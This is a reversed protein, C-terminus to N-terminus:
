LLIEDGYSPLVIRGAKDSVVQEPRFSHLPVLTKPEITDIFNRLNYPRAHGGTGRYEYKINLYKLLEIMKNYSPDYDGLPSGDMHIFRTTVEKLDILEYINSYDIQLVYKSPNELINQKSITNWKNSINCANDSSQIGYVIINDNPYFESLHSAQIEDVVLVRGNKKLMESLLHIREVNRNYPNIVILGSDEQAYKEVTKLLTYETYNETSEELSLMDIDSFSVTVGETILVDVGKVCQAFKDTVDKHLGHMRYDGTYCISGNETTILFGCAGIVDHDIPLVQVTIDGITFSDYDKIGICNKHEKIELENIKGLSKYLKLSNESMYVPVNDDLMGLGGMHDIHMHSIIFFCEKETKGYPLMDLKNCTYEDFVGDTKAIVGLEIYDAVLDNERFKIKNDMRDSVAFGFDFMCKSKETEVEIFTGGISRLGGYFKIKTM